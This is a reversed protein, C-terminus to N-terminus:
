KSLVRLCYFFSNSQRCEKWVMVEYAIAGVVLAVMLVWLAAVKM